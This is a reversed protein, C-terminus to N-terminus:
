KLIYVESDEDPAAPTYLAVLVVYIPSPGFRLDARFGPPKQVRLGEQGPRRVQPLQSYQRSVRSRPPATQRLTPLGTYGVGAAVVPPSDSIITPRRGRVLLDGECLAM